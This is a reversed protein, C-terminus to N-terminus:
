GPHGPPTTWCPTACRVRMPSLTDATLIASRIRCSLEARYDIRARGPVAPDFRIGTVKTQGQSDIASTLRDAAAVLAALEAADPDAASPDADGFTATVLVAAGAVGPDTDSLVGEEGSEVAVTGHYGDAQHTLRARVLSRGVAPPQHVGPVAPLPPTFPMSVDISDPFPGGAGSWGLSYSVPGATSHASGTLGQRGAILDFDLSVPGASPLGGVTVTGALDLAPVGDAIRVTVARLRLSVSAGGSAAPLVEPDARLGVQGSLTWRVGEPGIDLTAAPDGDVTLSLPAGDVRASLMLGGLPLTLSASVPGGSM